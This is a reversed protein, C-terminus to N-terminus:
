GNMRRSSAERGICELVGELNKYIDVNSFRLVKFGRSRLYADRREDRGIEDDTGHTAGDLEVDLRVPVCAFDAIYPGIPHQRRFRRGAVADRRLRSWLIIEAQTMSKRLQRARAPTPLKEDDM